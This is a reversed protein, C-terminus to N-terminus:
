FVIDDSINSLMVSDVIIFYDLVIANLKCDMTNNEGQYVWLANLYHIQCCITFLPWANSLM